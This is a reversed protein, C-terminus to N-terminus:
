APDRYSTLALGTPLLAQRALQHETSCSLAPHSRLPEQTNTLKPYIVGDRGEVPGWVGGKGLVVWRSTALERLGCIGRIWPSSAPGPGRVPYGLHCCKPLRVPEVCSDEAWFARGRGPTCSVAKWEGATGQGRQKRPGAIGGVGGPAGSDGLCGMGMHQHREPGVGSPSLRHGGTGAQSHVGASPCSAQGSRAPQPGGPGARPRAYSWELRAGSLCAEDM